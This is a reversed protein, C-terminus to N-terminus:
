KETAAQPQSIQPLPCSSLMVSSEISQGNAPFRKIIKAPVGGVIVNSPVDNIVVANAGIKVNDGIRIPGLIAAGAFVTVNDGFVPTSRGNSLRERMGITVNQHVRFNRGAVVNPGIVLGVSHVIQFGPGISSSSSIEAGYLIREINELVLPFFPIRKRNLWNALRYLVVVGFTSLIFLSVILNFIKLGSKRSDERLLEFTNKM